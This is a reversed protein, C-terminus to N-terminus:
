FAGEFQGDVAAKACWAKYMTDLHAVSNYFDRIKLAYTITQPTGAPRDYKLRGTADKSVTTRFNKVNINIPNNREPNYLIEVSYVLTGEENKDSEKPKAQGELIAFSPLEKKKTSFDILAAKSLELLAPLEVVPINATLRLTKGDTNDNARLVLRCLNNLEAPNTTGTAFYGELGLLKCGSKVGSPKNVFKGMQHRNEAM